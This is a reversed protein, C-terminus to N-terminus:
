WQPRHSWFQIKGLTSRDARCKTAAAVGDESELIEAGTGGRVQTDTVWQDHSEWM